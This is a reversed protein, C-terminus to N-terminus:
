CADRYLRRVDTCQVVCWTLHKHAQVTPDFSCFSALGPHPFLIITLAQAGPRSRRCGVACRLVFYLLQCQAADALQQQVACAQTPVFFRRHVFTATADWCNPSYMVCAPCIHRQVCLFLPLLRMCPVSNLEQPSAVRGAHICVFLLTGVVRLSGVLSPTM